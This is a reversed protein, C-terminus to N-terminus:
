TRFSLLLILAFEELALQVDAGQFDPTDETTDLFSKIQNKSMSGLQKALFLAATPTAYKLRDVIISRSNLDLDSIDRYLGQVVQDDQFM